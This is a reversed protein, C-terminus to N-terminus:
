MTSFPLLCISLQTVSPSAFHLPKAPGVSGRLMKSADRKRVSQKEQQSVATVPYCSVPLGRGSSVTTKSGRTNTRTPAGTDVARTTM